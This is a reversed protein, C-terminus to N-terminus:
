NPTNLKYFPANLLTLYLFKIRNNFIDITFVTFCARKASFVAVVGNIKSHHKLIIFRHM